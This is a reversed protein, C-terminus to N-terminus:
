ILILLGWQAALNVCYQEIQNPLITLDKTSDCPLCDETVVPIQVNSHFMSM